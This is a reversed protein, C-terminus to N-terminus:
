RPEGEEDEKGRAGELAELKGALKQYMNLARKDTISMDCLGEILLEIEEKSLAVSITDAIIKQGDLLKEAEDNEEPKLSSEPIYFAFWNPRRHSGVRKCCYPRDPVFDPSYEVLEGYECGSLNSFARMEDAFYGKEDMIIEARNFPAYILSRDKIRPDLKM